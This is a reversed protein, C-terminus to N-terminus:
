KFNEKTDCSVLRKTQKRNYLDNQKLFFHVNGPAATRKKFAFFENYFIGISTPSLLIILGSEEM